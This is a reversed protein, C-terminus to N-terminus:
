PTAPRQSFPVAQEPEPVGLTYYLFGIAHALGRRRRAMTARTDLIARELELM